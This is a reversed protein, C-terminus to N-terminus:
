KRMSKQAKETIPGDVNNARLYKKAKETIPGHKTHSDKKTRRGAVFLTVVNNSRAVTSYSYARAEEFGRV